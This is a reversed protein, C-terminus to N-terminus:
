SSGRTDLPNIPHPSKPEKAKERIKQDVMAKRLMWYPIGLVLADVFDKDSRKGAFELMEKKIAEDENFIWDRMAHLTDLLEKASMNMPKAASTYTVIGGHPYDNIEQIEVITIDKNNEMWSDVYKRLLYRSRSAVHRKGIEEGKINFAMLCYYKVQAQTATDSM